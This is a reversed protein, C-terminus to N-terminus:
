TPPRATDNLVILRCPEDRERIVRRRATMEADATPKDLGTRIALWRKVDSHRAWITFRDPHGSPRSPTRAGGTM